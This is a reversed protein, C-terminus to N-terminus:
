GGTVSEDDYDEELAADDVSLLVDANLLLDDLEDAPVDQLISVVDTTAQPVLPGDPAGGRMVFATAGVAVLVAAATALPRRYWAMPLARGAPKRSGVRAIVNAAFDPPVPEDEYTELLDGIHRLHEVVRLAGPNDDLWASVHLAEEASLEGDIYANLLERRADVDMLDLNPLQPNM